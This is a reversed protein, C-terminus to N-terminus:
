FVFYNLYFTRANRGQSLVKKAIKFIEYTQNFNFKISSKFSRLTTTISKVKLVTMILMIDNSLSGLVNEGALTSADTM